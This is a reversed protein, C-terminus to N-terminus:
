QYAFNIILRALEDPKEIDPFHGCQDIYGVVANPILKAFQECCIPPVIKDQKGAILQTPTDVARLLQELSRDFMYPRWAIRTTMERNIEWTVLQDVDPVDGFTAHYSALDHFGSTIYEESSLVFQDLIEGEAPQLGMPNVLSMGCIHDSATTAMEAAIWGGFGLGVVYPKDLGMKRLMWQYLTAMDRVTRMWAPRESTDFGPHSPVYVTFKSALADYFPLWGPNGIDHHLILLPDGSGGTQIDVIQENITQQIKSNSVM